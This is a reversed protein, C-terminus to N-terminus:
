VTLFFLKLASTSHTQFCGLYSACSLLSAMGNPSAMLAFLAPKCSLPVLLRFQCSGRGELRLTHGSAIGSVSRWPDICARPLGKAYQLAGAYIYRYRGQFIVGRKRKGKEM